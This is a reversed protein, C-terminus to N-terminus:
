VLTRAGESSSRAPSSPVQFGGPSSMCPSIPCGWFGSLKSSESDSCPLEASMGAGTSASM